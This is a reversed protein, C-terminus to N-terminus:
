IWLAFVMENPLNGNIMGSFTWNTLTGIQCGLLQMIWAKMTCNCSRSIFLKMEQQQKMLLARSATQKEMLFFHFNVNIKGFITIECNLAVGILQALEITM